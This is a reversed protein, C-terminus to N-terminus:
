KIQATIKIMVYRQKMSNTRIRLWQSFTGPTWSRFKVTLVGKQNPKVLYNSFEPIIEPKHFLDAIELTVTGANKFSIKKQYTKGVKIAGFDVADTEFEPIPHNKVIVDGTLLVRLNPNKDDNSHITVAKTIRGNFGKSNFKVPIVGTEGPKYERKKLGVSTCGCAPIVGKIVLLSDGANEFQFQLEAVQGQDIKGFNVTSNKVKLVAGAFLSLSLSFTALFVSIKKM